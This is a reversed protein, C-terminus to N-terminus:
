KKKGGRFFGVIIFVAGILMLGIIILVIIDTTGLVLNTKM